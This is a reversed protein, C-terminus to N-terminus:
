IRSWEVSFPSRRKKPSTSSPRASPTVSSAKPSLTRSSSSCPWSVSSAMSCSLSAATRQSQAHQQTRIFRQLCDNGWQLYYPVSGRNWRHDAIEPQPHKTVKLAIEGVADLFYLCSWRQWWRILHYELCECFLIGWDCMFIWWVVLVYWDKSDNGEWISSFFGM